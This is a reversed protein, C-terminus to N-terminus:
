PGFKPVIATRRLLRTKTTCANQNYKLLLIVVNLKKTFM